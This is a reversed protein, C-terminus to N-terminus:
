RQPRDVAALLSSRARTSGWSDGAATTAQHRRPQPVSAVAASTCASADRVSTRGIPDPLAAALRDHM